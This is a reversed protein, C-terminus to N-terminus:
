SLFFISSDNGKQAGSNYKYSLIIKLCLLDKEKRDEGIRTNSMNWYSYQDTFLRSHNVNKLNSTLKLYLLFYYLAKRNSSEERGSFKNM